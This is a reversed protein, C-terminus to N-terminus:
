IEYFDQMMIMIEVIIGNISNDSKNKCWRVSVVGGEGWVCPGYLGFVEIQQFITPIALQSSKKVSNIADVHDIM